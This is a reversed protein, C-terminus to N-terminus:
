TRQRRRRQEHISNLEKHFEKNRRNVESVPMDKLEDLTGQAEQLVREWYEYKWLKFYDLSMEYVDKLTRYAETEIGESTTEYYKLGLLAVSNTSPYDPWDPDREDEMVFVIFVTGNLQLCFEEWFSWEEITPFDKRCHLVLTKGNRCNLELKLAELGFKEFFEMVFSPAASLWLRLISSPRHFRRHGNVSPTSQIHVPSAQLTEREKKHM